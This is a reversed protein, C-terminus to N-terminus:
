RERNGFRDIIAVDFKSKTAKGCTMLNPVILAASLFWFTRDADTQEVTLSLGRASFVSEGCIEGGRM